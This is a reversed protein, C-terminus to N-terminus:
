LLSSVDSRLSSTYLKKNTILAKMALVHQEILSLPPPLPHPALPCYVKGTPDSPAPFTGVTDQDDAPFPSDHISLPTDALIQVFSLLFCFNVLRNRAKLYHLTASEM